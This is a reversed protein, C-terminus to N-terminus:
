YTAMGPAGLASLVEYAANMCNNGNVNYGRAAFGNIRGEARRIQALRVNRFAKEFKYATYGYPSRMAGLMTVNNTYGFRNWGGNKQGALIYPLNANGEV